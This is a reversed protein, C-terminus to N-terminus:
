GSPKADDELITLPRTHILVLRVAYRVGPAARENMEDRSKTLADLDESTTLATVIGGTINILEYTTRSDRIM